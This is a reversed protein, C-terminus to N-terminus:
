RMWLGNRKLNQRIVSESLTAAQPFMPRVKKRGWGQYIMRRAPKWEKLAKRVPHPATARELADIVAESERAYLLPLYRYHCSVAGDLGDLAPGPRGGGFSHVVLPLAIQDLWPDLSQCALMDGPDDRIALSWELFRAGFAAPDAAAFWGANFYLYRAWHEDPFSRDLSSHFDLGFRDYLARWIETFGPGYLPPQPWSASRRMSATPRGFDFGIRDLPGTIVTDSDFFVFPQGVPLFALSEIKNGQPYTLGFHQATFPIIEADLRELASAVPASIATQRGQWAGEPRPQAVILRGGFGPAHCRLSAAFILAEYELRGAQAVILINFSDATETPGAAM